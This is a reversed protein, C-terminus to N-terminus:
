NEFLDYNPWEQRSDIEDLVAQGMLPISPWNGTSTGNTLISYGFEDNRRELLTATGPLAGSHSWNQYSFYMPYSNVIDEVETNRDIRVLFRLLDTASAIWGGHSDMRTVNIGYPSWGLSYYTVENPAKEELLNKAIAMDEIGCPALVNEMMFQEYTQDTVKEIIRGLLCYGFNSYLYTTGPEHELPINDLTYGILQEFDWSYDLFMPDNGDNTWGGARHDLLHGVNIDLIDDSYPPTGYTNGLIGDDGFVKNGLGLKGQERLIYIGIATLPKSISAIRFLSGNNVPIENEVDSWGFSKQYVLKENKTIAVQVGPVNQAEMFSAIREDLLPFDTTLDITFTRANGNAARVEITAGDLIDLSTVGSTLEIAEQGGSSGYVSAGNSVQFEPILDELTTSPPLFLGITTGAITAESDVPIDNVNKKFQFSILNNASSLSGGGNNDNNPTSPNQSGPNPAPDSSDSSCSYAVFIIALLFCLKKM